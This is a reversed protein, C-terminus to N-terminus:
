ALIRAAPTAPARSTPEVGTSAAIVTSRASIADFPRSTTTPVAVSPRAVTVITPVSIKVQVPGVPKKMSLASKWGALQVISSAM